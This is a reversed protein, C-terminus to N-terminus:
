RAPAYRLKFLRDGFCNNLAENEEMVAWGDENMNFIAVHSSVAIGGVAYLMVWRKGAPAADWFCVSFGDDDIDDGLNCRADEVSPRIKPIDRRIAAALDPPLKDLSRVLRSRDLQPCTTFAEAVSNSCALVALFIIAKHLRSPKV